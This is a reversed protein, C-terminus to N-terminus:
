SHTSMGEYGATAMDEIRKAFEKITEGEHQKIGQLQKRVIQPPDKQDFTKM